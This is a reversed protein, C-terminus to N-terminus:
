GGRPTQSASSAFDDGGPGDPKAHIAHIASQRTLAKQYPSDVTRIPREVLPAMHTTRWESKTSDAMTCFIMSTAPEEGALKAFAASFATALAASVTRFRFHARTDSSSISISPFFSFHYRTVCLM